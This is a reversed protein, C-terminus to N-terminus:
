TLNNPTCWNLPLVTLLTCLLVSHHASSIPLLAPATLRSGPLIGTPQTALDSLVLACRGAVTSGHKGSERAVMPQWVPWSMDAVRM